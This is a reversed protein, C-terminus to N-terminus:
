SSPVDNTTIVFPINYGNALYVLTDNVTEQEPFHGPQIELYFEDFIEKYLSIQQLCRDIDNAIVASPITGAVCASLAILNSGYMRLTKADTRPKYYYGSTQATNHIRLLNKLGEDNKALLVLHNSSKDKAAADDVVYAEMGIVPKIGAKTCEEIFAFMASLSGHDTIALSSLGIEKARKVYASIHLVSDGISGLASHVHLPYYM